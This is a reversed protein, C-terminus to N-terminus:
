VNGGLAIIKKNLESIVSEQEIQKAFRTQDTKLMDGINKLMDAVEKRLKETEKTLRMETAQCRQFDQETPCSGSRSTLSTTSNHQAVFGCEANINERFAQIRKPDEFDEDVCENVALYIKTLKKM